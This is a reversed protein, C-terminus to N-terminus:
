KRIINGPKGLLKATFFGHFLPYKSEQTLFLEQLLFHCGVGTDKGPFCRFLPAQHAVAWLTVFFWVDSLSQACVCVISSNGCVMFFNEKLCKKILLMYLYPFPEIITYFLISLILCSKWFQPSFRLSFSIINLILLYSRTLLFIEWENCYKM